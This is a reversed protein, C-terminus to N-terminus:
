MILPKKHDLFYIWESWLYLRKGFYTIAALIAIGDIIIAPCTVTVIPVDLPVAALSLKGLM